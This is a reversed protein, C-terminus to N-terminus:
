VNDFNAQSMLRLTSSFERKYAKERKLSDRKYIEVTGSFAPGSRLCFFTSPCVVKGEQEMREM